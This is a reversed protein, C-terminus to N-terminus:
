YMIYLPIICYLSCFLSVFILFIQVVLIKMVLLGDDCPSPLPSDVLYTNSEEDVIM